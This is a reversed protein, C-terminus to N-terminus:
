VKEHKKENLSWWFEKIAGVEGSRRATDKFVSAMYKLDAVALGALKGRMRGVTMRGFRKDWTPAIESFFFEVLSNWETGGKVVKRKKIIDKLGEM